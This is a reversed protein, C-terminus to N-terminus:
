RRGRPKNAKNQEERRKRIQNLLGFLTPLPLERFENLPIWGYEKMLIDHYHVFIEEDLKNKQHRKVFAAFDQFGGMSM